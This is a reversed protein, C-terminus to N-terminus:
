HPVTIDAEESLACYQDCIDNLALVQGKNAANHLEGVLWDMPMDKSEIEGKIIKECKRECRRLCSM